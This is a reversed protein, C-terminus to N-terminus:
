FELNGVMHVRVHVALPVYWVVVCAFRPRMSQGFAVYERLICDGRVGRVGRAGRVGRVGADCSCVCGGNDELGNVGRLTSM